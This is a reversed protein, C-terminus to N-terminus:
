RSCKCKRVKGSMGQYEGKGDCKGCKARSPRERYALCCCLFRRGLRSMLCGFRYHDLYIHGCNGCSRKM